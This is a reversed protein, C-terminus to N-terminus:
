QRRRGRRQTKVAADVDLKREVRPLELGNAAVDPEIAGARDPLAVRRRDRRQGHAAVRGGRVLESAVAKREVIENGVEAM